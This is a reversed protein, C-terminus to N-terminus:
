KGATTFTTEIVSVNGSSSVTGIGLQCKANPALIGEPV